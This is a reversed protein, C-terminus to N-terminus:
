VQSFSGQAGVNANSQTSGKHKMADRVAGTGFHSMEGSSPLPM